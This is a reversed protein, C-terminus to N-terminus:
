VGLRKLKKYFGARTLGMLRAAKSKNGGAQELASLVQQKEDMKGPKDANASVEPVAQVLERPLHEIGIRNQGPELVVFAHEIAHQLQRINGPWPCTEILNMAEPSLGTVKKEYRRNFLEIFHTILDPLDEKRDSLAPVTLSVINLRYYLDSRFTGNEVMESLSRNTASLIRVDIPRPHNEGVRTIENEQLVRLLKVQSSHPLEGVEDLFLTGGSAVEFCGPRDSVAGTFAGKAHGFLEAEILSEPFAGCNVALFPGQARKSENHITRAVLEKGTGTQGEIVISADSQAVMEIREYLKRMPECSGVLPGFRGTSAIQHKLLRIENRANKILSVDVLAEIAGILNGRDDYVPKSRRMVPIISGDKHCIECEVEGGRGELVLPCIDEKVSQSGSVCLNLHVHSCDKGLIEDPTYGTLQEASHNWFIIRRDIDVIFVSCPVTEFLAERFFRNLNDVATM